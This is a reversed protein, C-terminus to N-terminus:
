HRFRTWASLVLGPRRICLAAAPVLLLWGVGTPVPMLLAVGGLALRAVAAGLLAWGCWAIRDTASSSSTLEFLAGVARSDRWAGSAATLVGDAWCYLAAGRVLAVAAEDRRDVPRLARPIVSGQWTRDIAPALAFLSRSVAVIAHVVVSERAVPALVRVVRSSPSWAPM